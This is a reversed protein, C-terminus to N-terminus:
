FPMDYYDYLLDMQHKTKGFYSSNIKAQNPDSGALRFKCLKSVPQSVIPLLLIDTNILSVHCSIQLVKENRRMYCVHSDTQALILTYSGIFLYMNSCYDWENSKARRWEKLTGSRDGM